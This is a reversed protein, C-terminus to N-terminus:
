MCPIILLMSALEWFDDICWFDDDILRASPQTMNSCLFHLRHVFWLSQRQWQGQSGRDSVRKYMSYLRSKKLEPDANMSNREMWNLRCLILFFNLQQAGYAASVPHSFSYLNLLRLVRAHPRQTPQALTEEWYLWSLQLEHPLLLTCSRCPPSLPLVHQSYGCSM